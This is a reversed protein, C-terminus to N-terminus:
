RLEPVPIKDSYSTIGSLFLMMEEDTAYGVDSVHFLIEDSSRVQWPSVTWESEYGGSLKDEDILYISVKYTHEKDSLLEIPFNGDIPYVGFTEFDEDLAKISITVKETDKLDVTDSPAALPHKVVDYLTFKKLPKLEVTYSRDTDTQIFMESDLFGDKKARLVGNVCYPLRTILGAAAGNSLYKTKGIDCTYYGCSFELDVGSLDYRDGDDSVTFLSIENRVDSCFEDDSPLNRTEFLTNAFGRRRPENHDISVMFAFNFSYGLHDPTQKDTITVKVPYVIDYTFHWLHLCFWSLIDSGKMSDSRLVQGDRPRAELFFPWREDYSFHVSLDDLPEDTVDWIYHNQFYSNEYTDEGDPTPVYLDKEYEAGNVRIYPLNVFLLKKLRDKIDELLWQKVGCGAEINTTPIDKNMSYLDITKKEIFYDNNERELISIATKLAKKLRIPIVKRYEKLDMKTRNLRYNIELPYDVEVLVDDDRLTVETSIGGLERIEYEGAFMQFNDLCTRLNNSIHDELEIKLFYETPVALNGEYWWYPVKLIGEPDLSLYSSPSDSIRRPIEIYGGTDGIYRIGQESVDAICDEVYEKVPVIEPSVPIEEMRETKFHLFLAGSLIILIALIFFIAVQGGRKKIMM